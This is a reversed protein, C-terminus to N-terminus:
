RMLSLALKMWSGIRLSMRIASEGTGVGLGKASTIARMRIPFLYSTLGSMLGASSLVVSEAFVTKM